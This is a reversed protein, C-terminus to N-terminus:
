RKVTEDLESIKEDKYNIETLAQVYAPHFLCNHKNTEDDVNHNNTTSTTDTTDESDISNQSENESSINSDREGPDESINLYDVSTLTEISNSINETPSQEDGNESILIGNHMDVSKHLNPNDINPYVCPPTDISNNPITKSEINSDSHDIHDKNEKVPVPQLEKSAIEANTENLQVSDNRDGHDDVKKYEPTQFEMPQIPIHKSDFDMNHHQDDNILVPTLKKSSFTNNTENLEIVHLTEDFDGVKFSQLTQIDMEQGPIIQFNINLNSDNTCDQKEYVSESPLKMNAFTDNTADLQVSGNKEGLDDVENTQVNQFDIGNCAGNEEVKKGVCTSEASVLISKDAHNSINDIKQKGCEVIQHIYNLNGNLNENVEIGVASTQSLTDNETTGWCIKLQEEECSAEQVQFAM